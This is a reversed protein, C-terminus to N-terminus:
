DRHRYKTKTVEDRRGQDPGTAGERSFGLGNQKQAIRVGYRGGAFKPMRRAM